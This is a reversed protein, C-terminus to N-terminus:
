IGCCFDIVAIVSHRQKVQRLDAALSFKDAAVVHLLAAFFDNSHNHGARAAGHQRLFHEIQEISVSAHFANVQNV